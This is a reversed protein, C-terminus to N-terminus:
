RGLQIVALKTIGLVITSQRRGGPNPAVTFDIDGDGSGLLDKPFVITIWPDGAQVSWPCGSFPTEVLVFYHFNGGDPGVTLPNPGALASTCQGQQFVFVNQGATPAAWRIAVTAKRSERDRNEDSHFGLSNTGSASAADLHLWPATTTVTWRCGPLTGVSVNGSGSERPVLTNIPSVHFECDGQGPQTFRVSAAGISLTEARATVDENARAFVKVSAPGTGQTPGEVTLWSADQKVSWACGAAADIRLQGNGGDREFDDPTATLIFNCAQPGPAAAAEQSISVSQSAITLAATRPSTVTSAAVTFSVSGSGTHSDNSVQLWDVQSSATWACASTTTVNATGTGGSAGFSTSPAAVSFSCSPSVPTPSKSNSNSGCGPLALCVGILVLSAVTRPSM